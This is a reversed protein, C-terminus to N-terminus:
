HVVRSRLPATELWYYSLQHRLFGLFLWELRTPIVLIFHPVYPGRYKGMKGDFTKIDPIGGLSYSFNSARVVRTPVLNVEAETDILCIDFKVGQINVLVFMLTKMIPKRSTVMTTSLSVKVKLVRKHLIGNLGKIEQVILANYRISFLLMMACVFGHSWFWTLNPCDSKLRETQYAWFCLARLCFSRLLFEFNPM